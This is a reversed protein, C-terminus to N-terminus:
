FLSIFELPVVELYDKKFLSKIVVPTKYQKTIARHFVELMFKLPIM